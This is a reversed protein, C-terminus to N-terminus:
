LTMVSRMLLEFSLLMIGVDVSGLAAFVAADAGGGGLSVAM